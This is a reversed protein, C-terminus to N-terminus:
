QQVIFGLDTLMRVANQSGGNLKVSYANFERRVPYEERIKEFHSPDFRLKIDDEMINYSHLVAKKVIELDDKNTGEISIVPDSPQPINGPFWGDLPFNFWKGLARVAMATGNAKGDSSYGAIHPTALFSMHMLPIDIEPEKEWVDIIVGSLKDNTVANKLAETEIVEGRSSNILWVGDRIKDISENDFMHWTKDEGDMNLPVHLSIIDSERLIRDLSVFNIGREKKERPPDNLLVNMGMLRALKEVKSGVNGVGIIGLTMERLDTDSESAIRMIASAIYQQVSSSNCGAANTWEIKKERCYVTDIHDFGITASAIFKVPTGELLEADCKTRTRVLLADANILADRNIQRGPMYTVNAFSDLAGKLFPIKDDAVIRIM